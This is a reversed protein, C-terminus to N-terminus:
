KKLEVEKKIEKFDVYRLGASRLLSSSVLGESSFVWCNKCRAYLRDVIIDFDGDGTVLVATDYDNVDMAVDIIMATDVKSKIEEEGRNNIKKCVGGSIVRYGSSSLMTHFGAVKDTTNESISSVYYNARVVKGFRECYKIFKKADIWWRLSDRQMYYYNEGDIYIHVKDSM